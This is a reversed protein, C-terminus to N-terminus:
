LRRVVRREIHSQVLMVSWVVDFIYTWTKTATCLITMGNGFIHNNNSAL